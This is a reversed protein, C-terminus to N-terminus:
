KGDIKRSLSIIIENKKYLANRYRITADELSDKSVRLQNNEAELARKEKINRDLFYVLLSTMVLLVVVAPRLDKLLM